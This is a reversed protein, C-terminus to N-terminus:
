VSGPQGAAPAISARRKAPKASKAAAAERDAAEKDAAEKALRLARLRSTKLAEAQQAAAHEPFVPKAKAKMSGNSEKLDRDSAM